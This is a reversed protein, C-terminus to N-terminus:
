GRATAGGVNALVIIATEVQPALCLSAFHGNGEGDHSLIRGLRPRDRRNLPNRPLGARHIALQRLTPRAFAEVARWPTEGQAPLYQGAPAELAVRAQDHLQVLLTTTFVKTVSGLQFRTDIALSEHREVSRVRHGKAFMLPGDWVIGVAAGPIDHAVLFRQVM